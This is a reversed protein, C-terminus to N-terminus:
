TIKYFLELQKHFQTLQNDSIAPASDIFNIFPIIERLDKEAYGTKLHLAKIFSEDLKVTPLKYRNRIHELFYSAMKRCLNKHDGKEYYLRGITKVFDLSDNRPKDIVPLMRQKRRMELLVYLILALFATFLGRKLSPYQFLVALWGRPKPTKEAGYFKTLYYEDWVVKKTDAPIVSLVNEYYAINKKHLLFYNSFALPALHLYINGKGTRLRIFNPDGEDDTGLVHTISSDFKYLYTDFRKGPYFSTFQKAFPPRNLTLKLSDHMDIADFSFSSKCKFIDLSSSSLRRASIFVTNGARAFGILKEMESEDALFQQTIILLAQGSEDNSLASWFRSESRNVSVAANTFIHKLNDYAVYSGYPIKDKKRLTIRDDFFHHKKKNSGFFLIGVAAVVLVLMM